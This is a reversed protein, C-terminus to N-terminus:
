PSNPNAATKTKNSSQKAGRWGQGPDCDPRLFCIQFTSHEHVCLFLVSFTGM